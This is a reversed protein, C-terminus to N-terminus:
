LDAVKIINKIGKGAATMDWASTAKEFSVTSSLLEKVSVRETELLKIALEYDGPGYRFSGKVTLEKESLMVMPVEIKSKGLGTQVYSGGMRLVHIGMQICSEAGTAEILVDAGEALGFRERLAAANIEPSSPADPIFTECGLYKRAFQLKEELIDILIIQHAGFVKAIVGCLLGITGSGMIVVSEGPKIGAQRSSHVAVSLPEILVALDLSISSPIKYAFDEPMRFYKTLMGHCAPPAAAFTMDVCQNYVGRKCAPCRRCPFGPEIAVHDGPKLTNCKSGVAHVIASAEHGMVLPHESDVKAGIGGHKWFHVDSGCVGVYAIQVIIDHQDEIVPLPRDELKASGPGYLLWSPNQM